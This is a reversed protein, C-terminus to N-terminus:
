GRPQLLVCRGHARVLFAISRATSASCLSAVVRDVARQRDVVHDVARQRHQIYVAM